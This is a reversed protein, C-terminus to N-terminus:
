VRDSVRDAKVGCPHMPGLVIQRVLRHLLLHEHLLENFGHKFMLNTM